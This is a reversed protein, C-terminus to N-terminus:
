STGGEKRNDANAQVPKAAIVNAASNQLDRWFAMQHYKQFLDPPLITKRINPKVSHQIKHLGQVGLQADFDPADYEINGFDHAFESQELFEYILGLVKGPAQTLLEYEVILLRDAWEGYCAEKLASYAFGVLRSRNALAETRSYVTDREAHNNFLRTNEFANERFKRELSDMVWAVDRVTCVLKTDPFLLMLADLQSTWLRNTDFIVDAECTAYFSDFIGKLLRKRQEQTVVAAFESGASLQSLLGQFLSGVPSTMGAEFRPNQRLLAALLTSGSRPLGSLFFYTRSM